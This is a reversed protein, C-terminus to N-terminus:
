YPLLGKERMITYDRDLNADPVESLALPLYLQECMNPFQGRCHQLPIEMWSDTTVRGVAQKLQDSVAQYAARSANFQSFRNAVNKTMDEPGVIRTAVVERGRTITIVRFKENPLISFFLDLFGEGVGASVGRKVQGETVLVEQHMACFKESQDVVVQIPLSGLYAIDRRQLIGIDLFQLYDDVTESKASQLRQLLKTSLRKL